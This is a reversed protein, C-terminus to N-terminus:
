GVYRITLEETGIGAMQRECVESTFGDESGEDELEREVVDASSARRLLHPSSAFPHLGNEGRNGSSSGVIESACRREGAGHGTSTGVGRGIDPDVSAAGRYGPPLRLENLSKRRKGRLEQGNASDRRNPTPLQPRPLHIDLSLHLLSSTADNIESSVSTRSSSLPPRRSM